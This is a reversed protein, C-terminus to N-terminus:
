SILLEDCIILHLEHQHSAQTAATMSVQIQLGEQCQQTSTHDTVSCISYPLSSLIVKFVCELNLSKMVTSSKICRLLTHSFCSLQLILPSDM